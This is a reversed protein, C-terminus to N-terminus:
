FIQLEGVKAEAIRGSSARALVSLPPKDGQYTSDMGLLPLTKLAEKLGM